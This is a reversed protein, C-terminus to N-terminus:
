QVGKRFAPRDCARGVYAELVDSAAFARVDPIRLADTMVIDAITFRGAALWERESLV